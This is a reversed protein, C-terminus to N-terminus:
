DFELLVQQLCAPNRVGCSMAKRVLAVVITQEGHPLVRGAWRGYLNGTAPSHVVIHQVNEHMMFQGKLEVLVAILEPEISM